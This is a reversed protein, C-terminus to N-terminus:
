RSGADPEILEGRFGPVGIRESPGTKSTTDTTM